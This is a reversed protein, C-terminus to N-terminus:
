ALTKDDHGGGEDVDAEILVQCSGHHMRSTKIAVSGM